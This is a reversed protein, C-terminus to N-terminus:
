QSADGKLLDYIRDTALCIALDLQEGAHRIAGDKSRALAVDGMGVLADRERVTAREKEHKNLVNRFEDRMARNFAERNL